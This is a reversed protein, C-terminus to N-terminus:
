LEPQINQDNMMSDTITRNINKGIVQNLFSHTTKIGTLSSLEFKTLGGFDNMKNLRNLM